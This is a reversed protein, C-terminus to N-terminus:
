GHGCGVIQGVHELGGLGLPEGGAKDERFARQPMRLAEPIEDVNALVLEQAHRGALRRFDHPAIGEAAVARGEVELAAQDQRRTVRM